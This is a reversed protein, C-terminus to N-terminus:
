LMTPLSDAHKAMEDLEGFDSVLFHQEEVDDFLIKGEANCAQLSPGGQAQETQFGLPVLHVDDV